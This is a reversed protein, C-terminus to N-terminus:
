NTCSSRRLRSLRPSSRLIVLDLAFMHRLPTFSVPSPFRCEWLRGWAQELEPTPRGRYISPQNINNELTVWEYEVAETIPAISPRTLLSQVTVLSAFSAIIYLLSFRTCYASLTRACQRDSPQWTFTAIVAAVSAVFFVVAASILSPPRSLQELRGPLRRQDEQRDLFPVNQEDSSARESSSPRFLLADRLSM